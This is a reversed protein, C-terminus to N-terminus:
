GWNIEEAEAAAREAVQEAAAGEEQERRSSQLFHGSGSEAGASLSRKEEEVRKSGMAIRM